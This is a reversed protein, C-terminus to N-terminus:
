SLMSGRGSKTFNDPNEFFQECRQKTLNLGAFYLRRFDRILVRCDRTDHVNGRRVYALDLHPLREFLASHKHSNVEVIGCGLFRDDRDRRYEVEWKKPNPKPIRINRARRELIKAESALQGYLIDVAWFFWNPDSLVIQPLNRGKHKGFNVTTWIM